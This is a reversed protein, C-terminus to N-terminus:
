CTGRREGKRLVPCWLGAAGVDLEFHNLFVHGFGVATLQRKGLNSNPVELLMIHKLPFKEIM